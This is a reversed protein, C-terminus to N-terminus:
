RAAELAAKERTCDLPSHKGAARAAAIERGALAMQANFVANAHLRGITAAGIIRGAEVDSEYHVGCYVRSLGFDLGRRLIANARDSAIEALALAWAWGISAHGSPYGNPSSEDKSCPAERTVMFPRMRRWHNKALDNARSADMRIRRLLMNLHPTAEESIPIDLTCSFVAAAAPFHLEADKTAQLWRPADAPLRTARYRAEDAALAASGQAPPGPLLALSDPYQSPELYGPVYGPRVEALRTPPEPAPAVSACGAAMCALAAILTRKMGPIIDPIVRARLGHLDAIAV